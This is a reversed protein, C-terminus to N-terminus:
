SSVRLTDVLSVGQEELRKYIMEIDNRDPIGILQFSEGEIHFDLRSDFPATPDPYRVRALQTLRHFKQNSSGRLQAPPLRAVFPESIVVDCLEIIQPFDKNLKRWPYGSYVLIDREIGDPWARLAALLECLAEPQDFPEGGSITVGDLRASRAREFVWAVLDSVAQERGADVPWTHPSCCDRCALSCGQFWVVARSGYGLSRVPWLARDLRVVKSNM